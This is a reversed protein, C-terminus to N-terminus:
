APSIIFQHKAAETIVATGNWSLGVYYRTTDLGHMLVAGNNHSFSIISRHKDTNSYNTGEDAWAGTPYPFLLKIKLRGQALLPSKIQAAVADDDGHCVTSVDVAEGDLTFHSKIEDTWLNLEQHINAIDKITALSGDKKRLEFGVNGLQLRHPNQRFWDAAKKAHEPEKVQESYTVDRGYQHYAKLTEERKYGVTDIFNHWGWESQTGLSVGHAYDKPFTQLGTVDVTFAFRGNGVTLSSLSDANTVVVNHRQVLAQRNVKQAFLNFSFFFCLSLLFWPWKQPTKSFLFSPLRLIEKWKLLAVFSMPKLRTKTLPEHPAETLFRHPKMLDSVAYLTQFFRIPKPKFRIKM